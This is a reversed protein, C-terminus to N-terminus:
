EQFFVYGNRGQKKAQYMAVDAKKLLMKVGDGDDPYISIGISCSIRLAQERIFFPSSLRELLKEALTVADATEKLECQIITFEDGGIRAVTDSERVCDLSRSAVEKLLMDGVEHGLTDNIEKFHDLDLFMVAMLQHNRRAQALARELRDFFLSRNPLNTLADHYAQHQIFEEKQKSETVDRLVVAYNQINGEGDCIATITESALFLAGDKRRNWIEGQWSGHDGIAEWMGKYFVLDHQNSKVIRPNQGILEEPQYGTMTCFAPNVSVITGDLATAFVGESINHYVNAALELRTEAMKAETIDVGTAVIFEVKGDADLLVTNAWRILRSEGGKTVWHNQHKSPFHGSCLDRFVARVSVVEHELLLFEWFCRGAVEAASYGTTKECEKNFRVVKGECDLVIILASATDLVAAIFERERLLEREACKRREWATHERIVREIVTPLLKLHRGDVRKVLYDMAGSKMTEVAVDEDGYATLMVVPIATRGDEKPLSALFELGDIEGSLQYDLLICDPPTDRTLALGEKATHTLLIQCSPCAPSKDLARQMAAIDDDNDEVILIITM